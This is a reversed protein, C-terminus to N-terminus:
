LRNLDAEAALYGFSSWLKTALVERWVRIAKEKEGNLYYWAAVGNGATPFGNAGQSRAWTLIEDPTYEGKFMLICRYYHENEVLDQGRHFQKIAERAEIHKGQRSYIQYLWYCTSTANDLNQSAKLCRTYAEGAAPLNGNLYQALGLHYWINRQLSSLQVGQPNPAGDPEPTDPKGEELNAAKVFDRIALPYLRLNIFRHGRHRLMRADLPYKEAGISLAAIAERHRGLYAARRSLWIIADADDPNMQWDALAKEYNVLLPSNPAPTSPYLLEGLLSIAEPAEPSKPKSM